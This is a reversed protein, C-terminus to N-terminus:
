RDDRALDALRRAIADRLIPPLAEGHEDVTARARAFAAADIVCCFGIPREAYDRFYVVNTRGCRACADPAIRHGRMWRLLADATM